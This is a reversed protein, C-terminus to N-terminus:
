PQPSQPAGPGSEDSGGSPLPGSPTNVLSAHKPGLGLKILARSDPLTRTQWGNDTQYRMMARKSREDWQGTPEGDLYKERILAAQIERVRDSQMQQQGRRRWSARRRSRKKSSTSKKKTSAVQAKPKTGSAKTSTKSSKAPTGGLAQVSCLLLACLGAVLGSLTKRRM